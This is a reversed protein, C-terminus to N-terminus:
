ALAKAGGADAAQESQPCAQMIGWKIGFPDELLGWDAGWFQREYAMVEACGAGIARDWWARGDAVVLQLHGFNPSPAAGEGMHDTLMLTGGNILLQAHMLGPQGEPNPMRGTDEAGFARAYFDCAEGARGNMALYPIVGQMANPETM